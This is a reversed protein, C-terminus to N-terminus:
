AVPAAAARRRVMRGARGRGAHDRQSGCLHADAGLGGCAPTRRRGGRAAPWSPLRGPGDGSARGVSATWKGEVQGSAPESIGAVAALLAPEDEIQPPESERPRYTVVGDVLGAVDQFRNPVQREVGAAVASPVDSWPEGTAPDGDVLISRFEVVQTTLADTIADDVRALQAVTLEIGTLTMALVLLGLMAALVRARVSRRGYTRRSRSPMPAGAMEGTPNSSTLTLGGHGTVVTDGPATVASPRTRPRQPSTSRTVQPPTGSAPSGRPRATPSRPATGAATGGDGSDDEETVLATASGDRRADPDSGTPVIVVSEGLDPTGPRAGSSSLAVAGAAILGAMLTVVIRWM